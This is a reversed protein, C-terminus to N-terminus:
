REVPSKTKPHHLQFPCCCRHTSSSCVCQVRRDIACAARAARESADQSAVVVPVPRWDRHHLEREEEERTKTSDDGCERRAEKRTPAGRIPRLNHFPEALLRDGPLRLQLRWPLPAVVVVLVVALALVLVVPVLVAPEHEHEQPLKPVPPPVLEDKALVQAAVPRTAHESQKPQTLMPIQDKLVEETEDEPCLRTTDPSEDVDRGDNSTGEEM